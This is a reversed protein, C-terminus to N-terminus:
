ERSLSVRACCADPAAKRFIIRAFNMSDPVSLVVTEAGPRLPDSEVPHGGQPASHERWRVVVDGDAGGKWEVRLRVKAGPRVPIAEGEWADKIKIWADPAHPSVWHVRFDSNRVLNGAAERLSVDKVHRGNPDLVVEDIATDSGARLVLIRYKGPPLNRFEYAGEPTALTSFLTNELIVKAGVKELGSSPTSTITGRLGAGNGGTKAALTGLTHLLDAVVRSTELACELVTPEVSPRDGDEVAKRVRLGREKSYAILGDMRRLFGAVAADDDGGLLQPAYDGIGIKKADVWNEMKSHVEGRIEAAHPPSGTDETFHLISGVWRSANWPTETRLAQLARRFYPEYTSRVEPCIHDYHKVAAPFLLFDDPYHDGQFTRRYDAMWCHERLAAVDPGLRTRLPHDKALVAIGADTIEPHPGWAFAPVALLLILVIRPWCRRV